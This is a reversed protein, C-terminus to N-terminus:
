GLLLVEEDEKQDKALQKPSSSRLQLKPSDVDTKLPLAHDSQAASPNKSEQRQKKSVSNQSFTEAIRKLTQASDALDITRQQNNILPVSTQKRADSKTNTNNNSSKLNINININVQSERSNLLSKHVSHNVIDHLSHSSKSATPKSTFFVSTSSPPIPFTISHPPPLPFNSSWHYSHYCNRSLLMKLPIFSGFLEMQLIDVTTGREKSDLAMMRKLVDRLESHQVEESLKPENNSVFLSEYEGAFQGIRLTSPFVGLLANIQCLVFIKAQQPNLTNERPHLFLPSRSYLELLVCGCAWIDIANTFGRIGLLLEPARHTLTEVEFDDEYASTEWNQMSNGFDGLQVEWRGHKISKPVVLINDLKLDGHIFQQQHLFTLALLLQYSICAIEELSRINSLLSSIPILADCCLLVRQIYHIPPLTIRHRLKVIHALERSDKQSLTWWRMGEQIGREGEVVKIVVEKSDRWEDTASLLLSNSSYHLPATRYRRALLTPESIGSTTKWAPKV